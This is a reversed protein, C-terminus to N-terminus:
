MAPKAALSVKAAVALEHLTIEYPPVFDTAASM